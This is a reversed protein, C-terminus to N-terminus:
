NTAYSGTAHSWMIALLDAVVAVFTVAAPDGGVDEETASRMSSSKTAIGTMQLVLKPQIAGLKSSAESGSPSAIFLDLSVSSCIAYANRNASEPVDTTSRQRCIPSDSALVVLTTAAAQMEDLRFARGGAM